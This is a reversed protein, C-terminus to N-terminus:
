KDLDAVLLNVLSSGFALTVQGHRKAAQEVQNPQGAVRRDATRRLGVRHQGGVLTVIALAERGEPPGLLAGADV